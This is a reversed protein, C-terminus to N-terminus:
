HGTAIVVTSVVVTSDFFLTIFLTRTDLGLSELRSSSASLFEPDKCRRSAKLPLLTRFGFCCSSLFRFRTVPCSSERDSFRQDSLVDCLLLIYALLVDPDKIHLTKPENPFELSRKVHKDKGGSGVDDPEMNQHDSVTQKSTHTPTNWSVATM